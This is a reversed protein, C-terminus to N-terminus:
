DFYLYPISEFLYRESFIDDYNEKIWKCFDLEIDDNKYDVKFKDALTQLHELKNYKTDM